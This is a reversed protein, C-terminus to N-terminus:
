KLNPNLPDLRKMQALAQAKQEATASKMVSLTSWVSYNDPFKKTADLAVELGQAELKNENLTMAVQVM